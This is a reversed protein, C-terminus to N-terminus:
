VASKMFGTQTTLMGKFVRAVNAIFQQGTIAKTRDRALDGTLAGSQLGEESTLVVAQKL